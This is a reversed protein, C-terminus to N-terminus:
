KCADNILQIKEISINYIRSFENITWNNYVLFSRTVYVDANSEKILHYISMKDHCNFTYSPVSKLNGNTIKTDYQEKINKVKNKYVTINSIYEKRGKKKTYFYPETLGINYIGRPTISLTFILTNIDKYLITKKRVGYVLKQELLRYRRQSLFCYFIVLFVMLTGIFFIIKKPYIKFDFSFILESLCFSFLICIIIGSIFDFLNSFKSGGMIYDYSKNMM